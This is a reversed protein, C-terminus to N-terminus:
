PRAKKKTNKRIPKGVVPAAALAGLVLDVREDIAADSLLVGSLAASGERGLSGGDVVAGGFLIPM